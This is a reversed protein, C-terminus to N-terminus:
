RNVLFGSGSRAAVTLLNPDVPNTTCSKLTIDQLLMLFARYLNVRKTLKNVTDAHFCSVGQSVDVAERTKTGTGPQLRM